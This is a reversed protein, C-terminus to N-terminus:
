PLIRELPARGRAAGNQKCLVPLVRPVLSLSLPSDRRGLYEGDVHLPFPADAAITVRAGRRFVLGRVGTHAGRLTRPLITLMRWRPMRPALFVDILGDDPIAAPNLYFGGGARPGNAVSVLLCDADITDDDIQIHYRISEYSSLAKGVALLYLPLGRLNRITLSHYTVMAEFGIGISNACWREGCNMVDLRRGVGDKLVRVLEDADRPADVMSAFDNGSGTPVVVIPVPQPMLGNVTESVTGDGGVACVVDSDSAARRALAIAHGPRETWLLRSEGPVARAFAEVMRRTRGRGATPNAIFSIRM